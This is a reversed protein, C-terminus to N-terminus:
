EAVTGVVTISQALARGFTASPGVDLGQRPPDVNWRETMEEIAESVEDLAEEVLNLVEPGDSSAEFLM